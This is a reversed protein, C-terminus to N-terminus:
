RKSSTCELHQLLGILSTMGQTRLLALAQYGRDDIAGSNDEPNIKLQSENSNKCSMVMIILDAVKGVDLISYVDNRDILM